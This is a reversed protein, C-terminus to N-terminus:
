QLTGRIYRTCTLELDERVHEVHISPCGMICTSTYTNDGQHHFTTTGTPLPFDFHHSAKNITCTMGAPIGPKSESKSPAFLLYGLCLGTFALIIGVAMMARLGLLNCDRTERELEEEEVQAREEDNNM